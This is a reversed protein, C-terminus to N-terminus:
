AEAIRFQASSRPIEAVACRAQWARRDRAKMAGPERTMAAIFDKADACVPVDITGSMKRLEAADIDVMIKKAARAFNAPAYGTVVLDLRAGIALLWDANQLTFNAGRPALPGPRGAMLPHDDPVMDHAPWTTLVPVGLREILARMGARDGSLRVGNGVLVVPREAEDLLAVARRAADAVRGPTDVGEVHSAPPDYGPLTSEDM